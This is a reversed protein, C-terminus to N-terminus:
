RTHGRDCTHIRHTHRRAAPFLPPPHSAFGRALLWTKCPLTGRTDLVEFARECVIPLLSTTPNRACGAALPLGFLPTARSERNFTLVEDPLTLQDPRIYQQQARTPPLFSTPPPLPSFGRISAM